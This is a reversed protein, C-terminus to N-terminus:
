SLEVLATEGESGFCMTYLVMPLPLQFFASWVMVQCTSAPVSLPSPQYLNPM